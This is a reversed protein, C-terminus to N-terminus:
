EGEYGWVVPRCSLNWKSDWAAPQAKAECYLTLSDCGRFAYNGIEAVKKFIVASELSECYAFANAEIKTVTKPIVIEKLATCNSFADKGITQLKSTEGFSVTALASCGHFAKAEIMRVKDPITIEKLATCKYFTSDSIKSVNEPITFSALAECKYFAKEGITLISQPLTVTKLTTCYSFVGYGISTVGSPVAFSRLSACNSFAYDEIKKVTDPLKISALKLCEAFANRGISELASNEDFTISALAECGAFARKGIDTISHPLVVGVLTVEDEFAGFRIGTVRDGRNSIYPIVVKTDTCEGMGSVLCTGDDNSSFKLGESPQAAQCTKCKKNLFTHEGETKTERSFEEGKECYIVEDYVTVCGLAVENERVPDKKVHAHDSEFACASLTLAALMLVLLWALTRKM